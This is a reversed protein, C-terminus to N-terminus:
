VHARRERMLAAQYANRCPKCGRKVGVRETRIVEYPGGCADCSFKRPRAAAGLQVNMKHTVPELHDANICARTECRHHLVMGKPVPGKKRKYANAYPGYGGKNLQGTWIICDDSV